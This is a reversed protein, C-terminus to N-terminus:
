FCLFNCSKNVLNNSYMHWCCIDGELAVCIGCTFVIWCADIPSTHWYMQWMLLWHLWFQPSYSPSCFSLCVPQRVSQRHVIASSPESFWGVLVNQYKYNVMHHLLEVHAQQFVPSVNNRNSIGVAITQIPQEYNGFHLHLKWSCLTWYFSTSKIDLYWNNFGNIAYYCITRALWGTTFIYLFKKHIYRM